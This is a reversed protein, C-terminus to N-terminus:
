SAQPYSAIFATRFRVNVSCSNYFNNKTKVNVTVFNNM